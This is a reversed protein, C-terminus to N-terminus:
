KGEGEKDIEIIETHANIVGHEDRNEEREIEVTRTGDARETIETEHRYVVGNDLM